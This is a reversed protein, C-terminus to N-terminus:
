WKLAEPAAIDDSTVFESGSLHLWFAPHKLLNISMKRLGCLGWSLPMFSFFRLFFYGYFLLHFEAECKSSLPLPVMKFPVVM